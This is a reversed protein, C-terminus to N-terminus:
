RKGHRQGGGCHGSQGACRGHRHIMGRGKGQSDAQPSEGASQQRSAANRGCRGPRPGLPDHGMPGQENMEPM